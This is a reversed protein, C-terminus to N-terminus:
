TGYRKWAAMFVDPFRNEVAKVAPELFARKPYRGLGLEHVPGYKLHTGVDISFPKKHWEPTISGVLGAGGRRSTLKTPHVPADKLTRGGRPGTAFFRSGQIIQEKAANEAVLYACQLLSETLIKKNQSPSLKKLARELEAGGTVKVSVALTM